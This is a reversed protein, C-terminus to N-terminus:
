VSASYEYLYIEMTKIVHRLSTPDNSKIKVMSSKIPIPQYQFAKVSFLKIGFLKMGTKPTGVAM